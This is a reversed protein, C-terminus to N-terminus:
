TRRSYGETHPPGSERLYLRDRALTTAKFHGHIVLVIKWMPSGHGGRLSLCAGEIVAGKM